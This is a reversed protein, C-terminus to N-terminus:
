ILAPNKIAHSLTVLFNKYGKLWNYCPTGIIARSLKTSFSFELIQGGQLRCKQERKYVGFMIQFGFNKLLKLTKMVNPTVWAPPTLGHRKQM